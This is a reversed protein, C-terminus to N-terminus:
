NRSCVKSTVGRGHDVGWRYRMSDGLLKWVNRARSHSSSSLSKASRTAVYGRAQPQSNHRHPPRRCTLSDQSGSHCHNDFGSCCRGCRTRLQTNGVCSGTCVTWFAHNPGEEAAPAASPREPDTCALGLQPFGVVCVRTRKMVDARRPGPGPTRTIFVAPSRELAWSPARRLRSPTGM